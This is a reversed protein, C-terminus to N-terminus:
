NWKLLSFSVNRYSNMKRESPPIIESSVPLSEEPEAPEETRVASQSDLVAGDIDNSNPEVKIDPM